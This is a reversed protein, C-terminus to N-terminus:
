EAPDGDPTNTASSKLAELQRIAEQNAAMADMHDAIRDMVGKSRGLARAGSPMLEVGWPIGPVAFFTGYGSSDRAAEQCALEGTEAQYVGIPKEQWDLYTEGSFGRPRKLSGFVMYHDM